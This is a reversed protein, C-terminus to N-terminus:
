FDRDDNGSESVAATSTPNGALDTVAASPVWSMTGNSVGSTGDAENIRLTIVTAPVGNVNTTSATMTASIRLTSLFPAYSDDLSVAGLSVGTVDLVDNLSNFNVLIGDRVRLSVATASGDWGSLLTPLSIRESYTFVVTDGADIRGAVGGNTTQIDVGRPGSNDVIRGAVVPSTTTAGTSDTLVARLDYSGEALGGTAFSCTYPAGTDVCIDSWSSGGAPARQIRVSTISGTSTANATLTVTGRLYTGPDTLTVSSIINGITRSGIVASTTANGAKDTAVARFSYTGNALKTTDYSCSYPAAAVTCLTSYTSGTSYEIVVQAVGSLADTATAAFTKTGTIRSGPDTMAVTPAQNDVTTRVTASTATNGAVDTAVARLDYAGGALSTTAWACTYPASTDNCLTTWASGQAAQVQIAVNKVGSVADSATATLTISGKTFAGPDQLTVTPPTWDAASSVTSTSTSSSAFTAGSFGTLSLTAAAVVAIVVLLGALRASRGKPQRHRPQRDM